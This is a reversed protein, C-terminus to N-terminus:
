WLKWDCQLPVTDPAFNEQFKGKWLQLVLDPVSLRLISSYVVRDCLLVSTKKKAHYKCNMNTSVDVV